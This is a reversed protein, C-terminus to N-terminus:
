EQERAITGLVGNIFSSDKKEAYKKALEVAENISVSVPIDEFYLIECIALRLIALSVKTIRSISWDVAHTEIETDIEPAHEVTKEVLSRSFKTETFFESEAALSFLEEVSSEPHFISEFLIIFAQEREQSRNM